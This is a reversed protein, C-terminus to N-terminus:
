TSWATVQRVLDDILVALMRSGEAASAGAPDGLVGNPSVALVGGSRLDDLLQQVPETRGAVAAELRVLSPDIALMLSTESRGAHADGAALNPWWSMVRRGEDRLTVLAGNVPALNGGHGNVFVVGDSWDASRVLEVLVREFVATGISLTGPFGRHEGSATIGLPPSVLTRANSAALGAAVAEAIRTDTDLPLHPGHQECSGIPVVLLTRGGGGSGDGGSSDLDTWTAEGLLRHRGRRKM